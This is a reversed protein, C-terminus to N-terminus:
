LNRAKKYKEFERKTKFTKIGWFESGDPHKEGRSYSVSYKVKGIQPNVKYKTM